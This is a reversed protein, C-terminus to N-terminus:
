RSWPVHIFSMCEAYVGHLVSHQVKGTGAANAEDVSINAQVPGAVRDRFQPQNKPWHEIATVIGVHGRPDVAPGCGAEWVVIDGIRIDDLNLIGGKVQSIPPNVSIPCKEKNKVNSRAWDDWLNANRYTGWCDDSLLQRYQSIVYQTCWIFGDQSYGVYVIGNGLGVEGVSGNQCSIEDDFNSQPTSLNQTVPEIYYGDGPYSEEVWGQTGDDLTVYWWPATMCQPGSVVTFPTGPEMARILSKDTGVGSRLNTPNHRAKARSGVSVRSTPANSGCTQPNPQVVPPNDSGSGNYPEIWYGENPYGESTWGVKGDADSKVKYWYLNGKQGGTCVPGEIVTFTVGPVMSGVPSGQPKARLTNATSSPGEDNVKGKDGPHLRPTLAGSCTNDPKPNTVNPSGVNSSGQPKCRIAYKRPTISEDVYSVYNSGYAQQCGWTPNVPTGDGCKWDTQNDAPEQVNSGHGTRECLISMSFGNKGDAAESVSPGTVQSTNGGNTAPNIQNGATGTSSGGGSPEVGAQVTVNVSSGPSTKWTDDGNCAAYAYITYTGPNNNSWQTTVVTGNLEYPASGDSYLIKIARVTTNTCVAQVTIRVITGPPVSTHDVALSISVEYGQPVPVPTSGGGYWDFGATSNPNSGWGEGNCHVRAIANHHGNSIKSGDLTFDGHDTTGEQHIHNWDDVAVQWDFGVDGPCTVRIHVGLQNNVSFEPVIGSAYATTPQNFLGVVAICFAFVVVLVKIWNKPLM